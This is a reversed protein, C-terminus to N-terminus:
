KKYNFYPRAKKKYEALMNLISKPTNDGSSGSNYFHTDDRLVNWSKWAMKSHPFRRIVEKLYFSSLLISQESVKMKRYTNGLLFLAEANRTDDNKIIFAELNKRADEFYSLAQKKKEKELKLGLSYYKSGNKFLEQKTQINDKKYVEKLHNAAEQWENITNLEEDNFNSYNTLSGFLLAAETPNKQATLLINGVKNAVAIFQGGGGHEEYESLYKNYYSLAKSYDGFEYYSNAKTILVQLSVCSSKLEQNKTDVNQKGTTCIPNSLNSVKIPDIPEVRRALSELSALSLIFGLVIIFEKKM